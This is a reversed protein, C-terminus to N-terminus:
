ALYHFFGIDKLPQLLHLMRGFAILADHRQAHYLANLERIAADVHRQGEGLPGIGELVVEEAGGLGAQVPVSGAAGGDRHVADDFVGGLRLLTDLKIQLLQPLHAVNNADGGALAAHTFAGYRHVQGYRQGAQAVAHAQCVGIDVAGGHGGHGAGLVGGDLHISLVFGVVEKHGYLFEADLPEGHAVNGAGPLREDPAAGHGRGGELLYDELGEPPRQVIEEDVHGRAGAVDM